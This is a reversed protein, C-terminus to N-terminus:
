AQEVPSLFQVSRARLDDNDDDPDYWYVHVRRDDSHFHVSPVNGHFRRSGTCLTINAVDLHQNTTVYFGAGLLLREPLTIGKHNQEELQSASLKKNEEDAEVNKRFAVIYSGDRNVDRDHEPVAVDLDESYLSFKAGFKRHGSVIKNSTIGQIMPMVWLDSREPVKLTKLAQRYEDQMDLVRYTESWNINPLTTFPDRHELFTQVQYLVVSGDDIQRFLDKLVGSWESMSGVIAKAM